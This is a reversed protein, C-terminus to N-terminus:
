QKPIQAWRESLARVVDAFSRNKEYCDRMWGAGNSQKLVYGIIRPLRLLRALEGGMMGAVLLVRSECPSTFGLCATTLPLDFGSVM